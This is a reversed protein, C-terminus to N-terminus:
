AEKLSSFKTHVHFNNHLQYCTLNGGLGGEACEWPEVRGQKSSSCNNSLGM